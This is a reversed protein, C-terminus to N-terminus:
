EGMEEESDEELKKGEVYEELAELIQKNYKGGHPLHAKDEFSPLAGKSALYVLMWNFNNAADQYQFREQVPWVGGVKVFIANDEPIVQDDSYSAVQSNFKPHDENVLIVGYRSLQGGYVMDSCLGTVIKPLWKKGTKQTLLKCM